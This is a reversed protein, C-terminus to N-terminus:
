SPPPGESQDERADLAQRFERVARGVAAATEPLKGPGIVLVAVILIFILHGPSLGEM